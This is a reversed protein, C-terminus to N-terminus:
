ILVEKGSEQVRKENLFFFFVVLYKKIRYLTKMVRLFFFVSNSLSPIILKERERVSYKRCYVM